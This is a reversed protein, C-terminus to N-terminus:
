HANIFVSKVKKRACNTLHRDWAGRPAKNEAGQVLLQPFLWRCPVAQGKGCKELYNFVNFYAFLFRLSATVSYMNGCKDM